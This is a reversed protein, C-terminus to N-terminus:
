EAPEVKQVLLPEYIALQIPKSPLRRTAQRSRGTREAGSSATSCDAGELTLARKAGGEIPLTSDRPKESAYRKRAPRFPHATKFPFTNNHIQQIM